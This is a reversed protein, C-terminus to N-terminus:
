ISSSCSSQSWDPLRTLGSGVQRATLGNLSLRKTGSVKQLRSRQLHHSFESVRSSNQSFFRRLAAASSRGDVARQPNVVLGVLQLFVM